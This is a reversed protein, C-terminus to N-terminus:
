HDTGHRVNEKTLEEGAPRGPQALPGTKEPSQVADAVPACVRCQQSEGTGEALRVITEVAPLVQAATESSLRREFEFRHGAVSVVWAAPRCGHLAQLLGLFMEPTMHHTFAATSRLDPAVEAWRVEGGIAEVRADAFVVQEYGVALDLWEPALQPLFASDITGGGPKLGLEEEDLPEQGLRKRLVDIMEFAVGDDGRDLNGYGIVLTRRM